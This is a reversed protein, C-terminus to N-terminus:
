LRDLQIRDKKTLKSVVLDYSHDILERIVDDPVDAEINVTNWHKKNMHYGPTIRDYTERLQLAREPNCKLNVTLPEKYIDCLAFMKHMVKLVLTTEDFPFAEVVGKKTHCYELFQDLNMTYLYM